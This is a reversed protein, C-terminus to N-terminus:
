ILWWNPYSINNIKLVVSNAGDATVDNLIISILEEYHKGSFVDCM